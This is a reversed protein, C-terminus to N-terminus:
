SMINQVYTVLDLGINQSQYQLQVERTSKLLKNNDPFYDEEPMKEPGFYLLDCIYFQIRIDSHCSNM